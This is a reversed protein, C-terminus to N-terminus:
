NEKEKISHNYVREVWSLFDQQSYKNKAINCIKCCTVVNESTYGCDNNIRDIGNYILYGGKSNRQRQKQYPLANCYYCNGIILEEFENINLEFTFGRKKANDSYTRFLEKLGANGKLPYNKCGCSKINGNILETAPAIRIKGCECECKWQVNGFKDNETREIIKLAGFKQETLDKFKGL